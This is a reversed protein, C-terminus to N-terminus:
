GMYVKFFYLIVFVLYIKYKRGKLIIFSTIPNVSM